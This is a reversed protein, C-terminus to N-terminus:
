AIVGAILLMSAFGALLAFTAEGAHGRAHTEPVIENSIVYLMTGAALGLAWPLSAASIATGIAGLTGAIPEVLGTALAALLARLRSMGVTILALAVVLGEPMNQAGIALMLARSDTSAGGLEAAAGVGVALGEPLNHLSIAFVLLWVRRIRGADPGERGKGPHEHPLCAHIFWVAVAGAMLAVAIVLAAAADSGFRLKGQELGPVILSFMTAALMIGGAFALSVDEARPSVRRIALVPIAGIGTAIGAVFSAKLGALAAGGLSAALDM